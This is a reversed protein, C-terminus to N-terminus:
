FRTQFSGGEPIHRWTPKISVLTESSRTAEMKLTSSIVPALFLTLRYSVSQSSAWKSGDWFIAPNKVAVATVVDFGVYCRM